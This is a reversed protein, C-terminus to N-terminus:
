TVKVERAHMIPLKTVTYSIKCTIGYAILSLEVKRKTSLLQSLKEVFMSFERGMRGTASFVLPAFTGQKVILIRSNHKEIKKKEPQENWFIKVPDQKPSM